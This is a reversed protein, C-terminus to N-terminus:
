TKVSATVPIESPYRAHRSSSACACRRLEGGAPVQDRWAQVAGHDGAYEEIAITREWRHAAVTVKADHKRIFLFWIVGVLVVIGGVIWPWIKRRHSPAPAVPDVSAVESSGDLPSGCQTCNKAQAGMPASCAPCVRDSGEYIHGEVKQQQEPSPFYRKAPNQPAGCSGCHRQSKGLLGKQGCHDCDWLMEYFGESETREATMPHRTYSARRIAAGTRASGTTSPPRARTFRLTFARREDEPREQEDCGAHGDVDVDRADALLLGVVRLDLCVDGVDGRADGTLDLAHDDLIVLLDLDAVHEDLEVIAILLGLELRSAGLESGCLCLQLGGLGLQREGVLGRLGVERDRAAPDLLCERDGARGRRLDILRLGIDGGGFRM